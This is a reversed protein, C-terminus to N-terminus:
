YLDEVDWIDFESKVKDKNKVFIIKKKSNIKKLKNECNKIESKKPTQWKIELAIEPKQFKLLIGDIELEPSEYITEILGNEKALNERVKQEVIKPFIKELIPFLDEVNLDRESINYKKDAYYYLKILPSSIQYSYRKKNYIKIKEILGFEILNKLYQQILSPDDKELLKTSFLMSSIEGSNTKGTAISGLIGEYISSLKREEEAFIEGVLAPITKLSGLFVNSITKKSSRKNSFYDIAIPETLLIAIELKKEKSMKINKLANLSDRLSITKINIESFLGLLPSKNSIINKSLFLTSSILILKGKKDLAHLLDLFEEPLRHFEDVVITENNSLGRILIERFTEYKITKNEHTLINRDKKVFFYESYDVFNKVLFTKGTKRRGYVLLWKNTEKLRKIEGPRQIIM